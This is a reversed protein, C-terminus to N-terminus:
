PTSALDGGVPYSITLLTEESIKRRAIQSSNDRGTLIAEHSSIM